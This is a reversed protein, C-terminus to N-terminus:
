KTDTQDTRGAPLVHKSYALEKFFFFLFFGSFSCVSNNLMVRKHNKNPTNQVNLDHVCQTSYFFHLSHEFGSRFDSRSTNQLVAM